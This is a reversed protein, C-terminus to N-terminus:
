LVESVFSNDACKDRVREAQLGQVRKPSGLNTPPESGELVPLLRM